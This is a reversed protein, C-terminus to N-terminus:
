GDLEEAEGWSPGLAVDCKFPVALPIAEEMRKSLRLAHGADTVSFCLEDHVQLLPMEKDQQYINVMAQKTMDAASGQILRNLAKYTFARQLQVTPGHTALAEAHKLAKHAQFGQPEWLDFRCKRGRLTRLSGGSRPDEVRRQVATTLAKVFPVREHYQKTLNKADDVTLDLQDALKNVGMGYMMALNIVKATKRPIGAMDAVLQHFDHRPNTQYSDVFEAIGPLDMGRSQGYAHAYHVLIRPEQQSFDIGAWQHGEEPLFLGRIMPGLEPNRAPIQQLNPATYSNHHILGGALFSHDGEVEIDWVCAEGVREIKEVSVRQAFAQAGKFYGVGLQRRPQEYPGRRHPPCLVGSSSGNTGSGSLDGCPARVCTQEGAKRHVVRAELGDFVGEWGPLGRQLQPPTRPDERVHPQEKGNKCSLDSYVEGQEEGGTSSRREGDSPRHADIDQFLLFGRPDDTKGRGYLGPGGEQLTGRGEVAVQQSVHYVEDGPNLDGVPVWGFSSLVRHGRTCTVTDGTSVTLRVMAEIGKFYRRKVRKWEGTHTKIREGGTPEYDGIRVPGTDLELITDGHLCMRGTVTGGDDSRIQNIHSHVRNNYVHSLLGDIFTGQAKNLERATVIAKALPHDVSALFGATFSPAGTATRGYVIGQADFAKAISQAAWIEVNFGAEARIRTLADRERSKLLQKLREARDTDIRIGRATMDILCPLLAMEMQWVTELSDQTLALKLHQWLELTLSADGEAYSGVYMAPLKWLEGKPDVGFEKAAANLGSEVKAKGLLDYALSNLSYSFRNEDLLNAAVMTDYVPGRVTLGTARLWGLDYSANHMVKVAPSDCVKEMWRLVLRRDLNGGGLHGIPLYVSWAKTAVAFGVVEGSRRPWGPGHTKIGPDRTEVDIAIEDFGDVSPFESPPVWETKPAFMAFQLKGTM